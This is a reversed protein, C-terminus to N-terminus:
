YPTKQSGPLLCGTCGVSMDHVRFECSVWMVRTSLTCGVSTCESSVRSGCSVHVSLVGWM